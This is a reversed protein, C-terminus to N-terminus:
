ETNIRDQGYETGHRRWVHPRGPGLGCGVIEAIEVLVRWVSYRHRQTLKRRRHAYCWDYLQSSSVEPGLAIFCRKIGRILRGKGRSSGPGLRLGPYERWRDRGNTPQPGGIQTSM